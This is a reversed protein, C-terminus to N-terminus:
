SDFELTREVIWRCKVAQFIKRLRKVVKGVVDFLYKRWVKLPKDSDNGDAKIIKIGHYAAM